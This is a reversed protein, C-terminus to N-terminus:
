QPLQALKKAALHAATTGPYSNTVRSLYDKAKPINQLDFEIYGIKLLADPVKSSNPYRSVVKEFATKAKDTERNIKYAEALWYQANDSFEGAPFDSLLAEFMKVAQENHGNRLTDYAQQYREKENGKATSNATSEPKTEAAAATAAGATATPSPAVTPNVPNAAPQAAVQAQQTLGPAVVANSQAPIAAPVAAAGPAVAAQAPSTPNAPTIAQIRGDLDSYINSQKRELDSITQAQEEVVGRLQQVESQLQELRGLIEFVANDSIGGGTSVGGPSNNNVPLANAEAMLGLCVCFTAISRYRM